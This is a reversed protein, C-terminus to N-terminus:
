RSQRRGTSPGCSSANAWAVGHEGSASGGLALARAVIGRDLDWARKLGDAEPPVLILTHFNGDGVHGVIPAALGSAAIDENAGPITEALRSIPVIAGTAMGRHGPRLSLAAWYANHRARWLRNREEHGTAQRFARASFEAAIAEAAEAQEAAGTPSCSPL